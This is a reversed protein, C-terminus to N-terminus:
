NGHASRLCATRNAEAGFDRAVTRCAADSHCSSRRPASNMLLLAAPDNTGILLYKGGLAAHPQDVVKALQALQQRRRLQALRM